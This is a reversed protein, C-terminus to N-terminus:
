SKSILSADKNAGTNQFGSKSRIARRGYMEAATGTLAPNMWGPPSKGSPAPNMPDSSGPNSTTTLSGSNTFPRSGSGSAGLSIATGYKASRVICAFWLSRPENRTPSWTFSGM